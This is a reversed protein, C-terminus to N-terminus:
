KEEEDDVIDDPESPLQEIDTVLKKFNEMEDKMNGYIEDARNYIDTLEKILEKKNM